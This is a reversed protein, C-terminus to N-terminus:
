HGIRFYVAEVTFKVVILVVEAVRIVESPAARKMDMPAADFGDHNGDIEAPLRCKSQGIFGWHCGEIPILTGTSGLEIRRRCLKHRLM